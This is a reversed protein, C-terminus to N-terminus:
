LVIGRQEALKRRIRRFLEQGDVQGSAIENRAAEMMRRAEEDLTREKEVEEALAALVSQRLAGPVREDFLKRGSLGRATRVAIFEKKTDALSM